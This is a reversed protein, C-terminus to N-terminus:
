CGALQFTFFVVQLLPRHQEPYPRCCVYICVCVSVHVRLQVISYFTMLVTCLHVLIGLKWSSKRVIANVFWVDRMSIM